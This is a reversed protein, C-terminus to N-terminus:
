RRLLRHMLIHGKQQWNGNYIIRDINIERNKLQSVNRIARNEVQKSFHQQFVDRSYIYTANGINGFVVIVVTEYYMILIKLSKFTDYDETDHLYSKWFLFRENDDEFFDKLQKLKIWENVKQINPSSIQKWAESGNVPKGWERILWELLKDQFQEISLVSLYRNIVVSKQSPSMLKLESIIFLPDERLYTRERGVSWVEDIMIRRIPSDWKFRWAEMTDKIPKSVRSLVEVLEKFPQLSKFVKEFVRQADNPFVGRYDNATSFLNSLIPYLKENQSQNMFHRWIIRYVDRSGIQCLIFSVKSQLSNEDDINLFQESLILLEKRRLKNSFSILEENTRLAAIKKLLKEITWKSPNKVKLDERKEILKSLEERKGIIRVPTFLFNHNLYDRM